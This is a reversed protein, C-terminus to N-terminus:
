SLGFMWVSSCHGEYFWIITGRDNYQEWTDILFFDLWCWNRVLWKQRVSPNARYGLQEM